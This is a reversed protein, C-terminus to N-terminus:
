LEEGAREVRGCDGKEREDEVEVGVVGVPEAM